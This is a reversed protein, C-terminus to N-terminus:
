WYGVWGGFWDFVSYMLTATASAAAAASLRGRQHQQIFTSRSNYERRMIITRVHVQLPFFHQLSLVYLSYINDRRVYPVGFHM